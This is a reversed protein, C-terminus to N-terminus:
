AVHFTSIFSVSPPFPSYLIFGLCSFSELCALLRHENRHRMGDSRGPCGRKWTHNTYDIGKRQMFWNSNIKKIMQVAYINALFLFIGSSPVKCVSISDWFTSNTSTNHKGSVWCSHEQYFCLLINSGGFRRYFKELFYFNVHTAISVSSSM